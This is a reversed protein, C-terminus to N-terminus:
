GSLGFSAPLDLPEEAGDAVLEEDLDGALGSRRDGAQLLQVAQEGGPGLRDIM